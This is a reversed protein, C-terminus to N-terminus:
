IDNSLARVLRSTILYNLLRPAKKSSSNPKKSEAKQSESKNSVKILFPKELSALPSYGYYSFFYLKDRFHADLQWHQPPFAFQLNLNRIELLNLFM